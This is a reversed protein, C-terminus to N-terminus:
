RRSVIVRTDCLHDHLTRKEADFAAMIYGILLILGSLIESVYRAFARGYSLSTGDARVVKLGLAMKGPTAGFRGVFWTSYAAPVALSLVVNILLALSAFGNGTSDLVGFLLAIPLRIVTQAVGTILNDILKAVVRVWFGGYVVGSSDIPATVTRNVTHGIQPIPEDGSYSDSAVSQQTLSAYPEWDAMGAHWVLTEDAITGGKILGRFQEDSLPGIRNSDDNAYYWDM